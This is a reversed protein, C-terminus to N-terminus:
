ASCSSASSAAAAPMPMSAAQATRSSSTIREVAVGSSEACALPNNSNACSNVPIEASLTLIRDLSYTSQLNKFPKRLPSQVSRKGLPCFPTATLSTFSDVSVSTSRVFRQNAREMGGSASRWARRQRDHRRAARAFAFRRSSQPQPLAKTRLLPKGECCRM